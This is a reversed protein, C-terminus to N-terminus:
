SKVMLQMLRAMDFKRTSMHNNKNTMGITDIVQVDMPRWTNCLIHKINKKLTAYHYILNRAPIAKPM